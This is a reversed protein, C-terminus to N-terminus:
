PVSIPDLEWCGELLIPVEGAVLQHAPIRHSFLPQMDEPLIWSVSGFQRQFIFKYGEVGALTAVQVGRDDSYDTDVEVLDYDHKEYLGKLSNQGKHLAWVEGKGPYIKLTGRSGEEFRMEHSFMRISLSTRRVDGVKYEGCAYCSNSGPSSTDYGSKSSSAELWAYSIQFPERSVVNQVQAYSRPFAGVADYHYCAWVQGASFHQKTRDRDFVCFESKPVPSCDSAELMSESRAPMSAQCAMSMNVANVEQEKDKLSAHNALCKWDHVLPSSKGDM